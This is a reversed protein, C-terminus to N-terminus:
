EDNDDDKLRQYRNSATYFSFIRYAGFLVMIVGVAKVMSTDGRSMNFYDFFILVGFVIIIIRIGYNLIKNFV